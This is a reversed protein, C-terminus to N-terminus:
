WGLEELKAVAQEPTLGDLHMWPSEAYWRVHRAQHEANKECWMKVQTDIYDKEEDSLKVEYSGNPGGHSGDPEIFLNFLFTDGQRLRFQLMGTDRRGYRETKASILGTIPDLTLHAIYTIRAREPSRGVWNKSLTGKMDTRNHTASEIVCASMLYENRTIVIM